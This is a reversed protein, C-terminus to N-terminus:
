VLSTNKMRGEGQEKIVWEFKDKKRSLSKINDRYVYHYFKLCARNGKLRCEGMQIGKETTRIRVSCPIDNKRLITQLEYAFEISSILSVELRNNDRVSFTVSGDGDFYGLIASPIFEDPIEKFFGHTISKRPSIGYKNLPNVFNINCINLLQSDQHTESKREKFKLKGSFGCDNVLEQLIYSDRDQLSIHLQMLKTKPRNMTVCGDALILGIYYAKQPDDIKEFYDEKVTLFKCLRSEVGKSNLANKVAEHTYGYKEQIDMYSLGKEYEECLMNITRENFKAKKLQIGRKKLVQSVTVPNFNLKKAVLDARELKRYEEEINIRDQETLRYGKNM